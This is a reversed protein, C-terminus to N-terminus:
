EHRVNVTLQGANDALEGASDNIKLFLTGTESPSITTGLGVANPRLLASTGDPAPRDPRVAALLMGLPRGQYYRISVGGPECWWVKPERAVQYRGSAALRYASGAELRLGSNQWGRDAAVTVSVGEAPLPKGPAFDVAAREVDYGYELNAAMLQWEECLEEWDGQFLRHFRENFDPQRVSASLQRFRQQYRPHRDLLTAMAWCWAYFDTEGRASMPWEIVSDFTQMHGQAVADQIIRIRGWEPVEERNEPMHALTLRGDRWDHTALYEAMGEMYWAPGCGGLVANMFGHVGEHLLLHRRYYDSPQEYLWLMSGRSFGHRFSPLDDPLLGAEVFRQKDGILFGTMRWDALDNQKVHFYDCWRPFAQEFAAPLQDVETGALDTYLTLRQGPLRRIADTAAQFEDACFAGSPSFWVAFSLSASLLCLIHRM